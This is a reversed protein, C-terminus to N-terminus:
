RRRIWARLRAWMVLWGTIAFGCAHVVIDLHELESLRFRQRREGKRREV